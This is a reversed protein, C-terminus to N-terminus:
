QQKWPFTTAVTFVVRAQSSFVDDPTGDAEKLDSGDVWKLALNFRGAAYGVGLSYDFYPRGIGVDDLDDWYHGWSYGVHALASFNQPLPVTAAAEAYFAPTNGATTDGGFDNSYSLKAKFWDKSLGAYIERYDYDSREYTYYILGVDWGLGNEGTSGSFGTYVDLEYSADLCGAAGSPCFDIDSGWAGLYWGSDHAYDISAQIAPGQASQTIGRLDYDSAATWTSSVGAHATAAVAFTGLAALCKSVTMTHETAM